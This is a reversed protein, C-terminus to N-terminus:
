GLFSFLNNLAVRVTLLRQCTELLFPGYSSTASSDSCLTKVTPFLADLAKLHGGLLRGSDYYVGRYSAKNIKVRNKTTSM